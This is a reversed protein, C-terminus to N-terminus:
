KPIKRSLPLGAMKNAWIEFFNGAHPNQYDNIEADILSVVHAVGYLPLFLPGFYTYQKTHALEHSYTSASLSDRNTLIVHDLTFARASLVDGILKKTIGQCSTYIKVKNERDKIVKCNGVLGLFEGLLKNFFLLFVIVVFIKLAKKRM